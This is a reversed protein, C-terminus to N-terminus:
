PHIGDILLRHKINVDMLMNKGKHRTLLHLLSLLNHLKMTEQTLNSPGQTEQVLEFTVEDLNVIKELQEEIM